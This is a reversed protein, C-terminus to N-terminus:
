CGLHMAACQQFSHAQKPATIPDHNVYVNGRISFNQLVQLSSQACNDGGIILGCVPGQELKKAEESGLGMASADASQLQVERSSLLACKKNIALLASLFDLAVDSQHNEEDSFVLILCIEKGFYDTEGLNVPLAKSEGTVTWGVDRLQPPFPPTIYDQLRVKEPLQHWNGDGDVPTFDHVNNWLNNFSSLGATKMHDTLLDYHLRICAFRIHTSSEIIPQTACHLFIDLRHSDRLRFQGCPVVLVCDICDRVFVSGKIPGLIIKSNTCDDINISDICDLVFIMNNSCNQIVLQQGNVSGPVRCVDEGKYNAIIFDSPDIKPKKDWSYEKPKQVEEEEDKAPNCFSCGM